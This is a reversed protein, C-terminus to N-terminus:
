PCEPTSSVMLTSHGAVGAKNQATTNWHQTLSHHAAFQSHAASEQSWLLTVTRHCTSRSTTPQGAEPCAGRGGGSLGTEATVPPKSVIGRHVHGPQYSPRSHTHAHGTTVLHSSPTDPVITITHTALPWKNSVTCPHLMNSMRMCTTPTNLVYTPNEM